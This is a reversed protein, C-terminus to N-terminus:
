YNLCTKTITSCHKCLRMTKELEGVVWGAFLNPYCLFNHPSVAPVASGLHEFPYKMGYPLMSLVCVLFFCAPLWQGATVPCWNSPLSCNNKIEMVQIEQTKNKNKFNGRRRWWWWWKNWKNFHEETLGHAKERTTNWNEEGRHQQLPHTLLCNHPALNDAPTLGDWHFHKTFHWM